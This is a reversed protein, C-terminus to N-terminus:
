RVGKIGREKSPSPSFYFFLPEAERLSEESPVLKEPAGGRKSERFVQL